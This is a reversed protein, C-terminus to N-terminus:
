RVECVVPDLFERGRTSFRGASRAKGIGAFRLRTSNDEEDIVLKCVLASPKRGVVIKGGEGGLEVPEESEFEGMVGWSSRTGRRSMSSSRSGITGKSGIAKSGMNLQEVDNDVEVVEVDEEEEETLLRDVSAVADWLM